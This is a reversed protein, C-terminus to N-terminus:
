FFFSYILIFCFSFLGFVYNGFFFCTSILFTGLKTSSSLCVTKCLEFSIIDKDGFRFAMVEEVFTSSIFHNGFHLRRQDDERDQDDDGFPM